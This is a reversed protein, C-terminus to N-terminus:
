IARTETKGAGSLVTLIVTTANTYRRRVLRVASAMAVAIETPNMMSNYATVGKPKNSVESKAVSKIPAYRVERIRVVTDNPPATVRVKKITMVARRENM